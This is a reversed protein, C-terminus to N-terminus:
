IILAVKLFTDKRALRARLAGQDYNKRFILFIEQLIAKDAIRVEEKHMRLELHNTM